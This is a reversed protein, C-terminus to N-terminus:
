PRRAAERAAADARLSAAAAPPAWLAIDREVNRRYVLYQEDAASAALALVAATATDAPVGRAALDTLVGLPVVLSRGPRRERLTTLDRPRAGVYLAAAGAELEAATADRGLTHRATALDAALRRVAGVIRDSTAGKSSGELARQILPETPLGAAAISDVLATVAARSAPDLRALRPDGGQAAVPVAAATLLLISLLTRM